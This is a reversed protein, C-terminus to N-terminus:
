CNNGFGKEKWNNKERREGEGERMGKDEKKKQRM